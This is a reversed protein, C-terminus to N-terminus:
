GHTRGKRYPAGCEICNTPEGESDDHVHEHPEAFPNVPEPEPEGCAGCRAPRGSYYSRYVEHECTLRAVAGAAVKGIASLASSELEGTEYPMDQYEAERALAGLANVIEERVIARLHADELERRKRATVPDNLRM